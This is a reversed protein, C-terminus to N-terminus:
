SLNVSSPINVIRKELWKANDLDECHSNSFMDLNNMLKWVPRTHIGNSNTEELFIDRLRQDKLIITNLWYNSRSNEPEEIFNYSKNVFFERYAMAIKRKNILFSELNELQAVLVAANLNPMRYNYGVVDHNYEWKHQIKATTTLHKAKEALDKDDTIICGGGGGTIIKNGNFSFIGISGFTGTHKGRFFSGLSEAADEILEIHYNACILKIQDIKCPHGFTHMPLCAKIRNGTIKNICVNNKIIANNNLFYNLSTPSLGMTSKDVDVFIPTAGCYSIANSTAVFTLPQTIVEDCKEVGSVLLAIHIASTGNVTSVAYKSNTYEAIKLEFTDVFKGVSSVFTTDICESLYKKENGIFSPEHLSITEFNQYIKKIFKIESEFM